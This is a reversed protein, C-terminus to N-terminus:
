YFHFHWCFNASEYKNASFNEHEAINLLFSNAITVLRLNILMFFKMSLQTSCSFLKIIEPGSIHNNHILIPDVVDCFTGEFIHTWHFNLDAQENM